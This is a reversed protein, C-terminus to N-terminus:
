FHFRLDVGVQAPKGHQSFGRSMSEFYFSNYKTDTINRGWLEIQCYKTQLTARASLLQYYKQSASNSETWYIRGAGTYTAGLTLRNAWANDFNWTYSADVNTTHKPVFPVYKGTYDIGKGGDYNTFKAYTYGYNLAVIFNRFLEGRLSLEAGRSQSHGANVMMRGLGSDAFRAIQQDRTDILFLAVDAQYRNDATSLHTGVEYNWSYEPKYTVTETVDATEGVPIKDLNELITNVVSAPMRPNEEAIKKIAAITGEKIQSMMVNQMESQLLDSFMQVNYGGSRTGRSVTVYVNNKDSFDYQLAFKPMLQLYDKSISGFFLPNAQLGTLNIPMMKNSLSFDYNITGPANYDLSNHEYDVRLGLTLKLKETLSLTSQHFIAANLVPTDFDGGMLIESDALKVGMPMAMGMVSIEPLHSNISSELFSVGDSMFTVPGKTNLNQYMLNIGSVWNWRDNGKSKVTLEDSFTRLKQKQELTYIDFHIFDQDMFMRDRLGQFGTMNTLTYRDAEYQTNLGVNIVSRKYSSERNAIINGMKGFPDAYLGDSVTGEYYYPYAGENNFDYNINLDFKLRSTPLYLARLRGGASQLDDVKEGTENNTFFGEATEYYGGVYWAFQENPHHYHTLSTTFHNDGSAYGLNVDTGSYTLPSRTYAKILGGMTNRGYLTGQPGRLVEIREIDTLNFDFASKDNFPINDVYLGVAPNNIRSGIGRIYMASTLRSGYDPMFFNPAIQSIGKLSSIKLEKLQSGTLLTSSMPQQSLPSNEKPSSIVTVEEISQVRLTDPESDAFATGALASFVAVCTLKGTFKVM